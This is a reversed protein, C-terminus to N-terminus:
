TAALPTPPKPKSKTGRDIRNLKDLVLQAEPANGKKVKAKVNGEFNSTANRYEAGTTGQERLYLNVVNILPKLLSTLQEYYTKDKQIEEVPQEEELYSPNVEAIEFVDDCIPKLVDGLKALVNYDDDTIAVPTGLIDALVKIAAKAAAVDAESLTKSIRNPLIKPM